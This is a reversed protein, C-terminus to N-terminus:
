FPNLTERQVYNNSIFLNQTNNNVQNKMNNFFESNEESYEIM